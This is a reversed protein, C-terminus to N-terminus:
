ILFWKSTGDHVLKISNYNQTLSFSGQGVITDSGDPTITITNSGANGGADVIAYYKDQASSVAPLTLSVIGAFDVLIVEDSALITYSSTTVNTRTYTATASLTAYGLTSADSLRLVQGTSGSASPWSVGKITVDGTLTTTSGASATVTNGSQITVDRGISLAM